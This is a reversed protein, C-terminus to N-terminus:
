GGQKEDARLAALVANAASEGSLMAGQISSSETYEGALFLGATPTTNRPLLKFIGPSQRFQAFPIRYTGVPRFTAFSKEPFWSSLDM